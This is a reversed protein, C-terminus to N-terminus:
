NYTLLLISRRIIFQDGRHLGKFMSALLTSAFITNNSEGATNNIFTINTIWESPSVNELYYRIFCVHSLIYDFPPSLEAYIAGGYQIARNRLFIVSSNPYVSIWSGSILLVAGGYLGSNDQFTTLSNNSFKM